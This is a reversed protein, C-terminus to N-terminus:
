YREFVCRPAYPGQKYPHETAILYVVDEADGDEDVDGDEDYDSEDTSLKSESLLAARDLDLQLPYGPQHAVLVITDDGAQEALEELAEILQRVNM